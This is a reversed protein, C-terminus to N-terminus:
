MEHPPCLPAPTHPIDFLLLIHNACGVWAFSCVTTDDVWQVAYTRSFIGATAVRDAVLMRKSKGKSEVVILSYTGDPRVAIRANSVRWTPDTETYLTSLSGTALELGKVSAYNKDACVLSGGDASVYMGSICVDKSEAPAKLQANTYTRTLLLKHM